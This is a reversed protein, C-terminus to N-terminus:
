KKDALTVKIEDAEKVVHYNTVIYGDSSVIVGSGLGASKRERPQRQRNFQDGFFRKFFPDEFMDMGGQIKVTRTTSINVIAPKVATAIEAMAKGTRTLHDVSQESIKAEATSLMLSFGNTLFILV